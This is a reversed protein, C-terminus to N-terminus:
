NIYKSIEKILDTENDVKITNIGLLKAGDINKASDDLFLLENPKINYKDLLYEYFDADPKIKHIEASIVLDDLYDTDFSKIIFEKVPSIHNTAITVKVNNNMEKVKKFIDKDKVKYLKNIISVVTSMITSDDNIINRASAIFDEDSLNPGLLRELKDEELSLDIDKENVLVGVFDFAVVKIM